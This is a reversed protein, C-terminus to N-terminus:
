YPDTTTSNTNEKSLSALALFMWANSWRMYSIKNTYFRNKRFYFYGSQDQMENIVFKAIMNSSVLYSNNLSAIESFLLIGVAHHHSEIPYLQPYRWCSRGNTLFQKKLYFELGRKLPELDIIDDFEPLKSIEYLSGLIYGQHFDIQQRELGSKMDISYNWRGDPKQRNVTFMYSKVVKEKLNRDGNLSYIKALIEAGLINANYCSEMEKNTYSFCLESKSEYRPLDNLIYKSISKLVSLARESKFLNFYKYIGKAVTATTVINPFGKEVIKGPTAWPFNNGWCYGSYGNSYNSVLWDFIFDIHEKDSEDKSLEYLICYGHLLVGMAMANYEKSIGLLPRLNLPLRMNVQSIASMSFKGLFSLPLFTNHIDIPDYGKFEELEIYAKLKALSEEVFKMDM